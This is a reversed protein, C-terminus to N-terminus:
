LVSSCLKMVNYSATQKLNSLDNPANIKVYLLGRSQTVKSTIMSCGYLMRHSGFNYNDHSDFLRLQIVEAM